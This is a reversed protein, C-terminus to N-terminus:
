NTNNRSFPENKFTASVTFPYAGDPFFGATLPNMLKLNSTLSITVTDGPGGASGLGGNLSTVQIDSAGLGPAAEEAVQIISAV